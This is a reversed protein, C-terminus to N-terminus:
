KIFRIGKYPTIIQEKEKEAFGSFYVLTAKHFLQFLDLKSTTLKRSSAVLKFYSPIQFSFLSQKKSEPLLM